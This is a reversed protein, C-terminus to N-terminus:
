DKHIETKYVLYSDSAVNTIPKNLDQVTKNICDKILKNFLKEAENVIAAANVETNYDQSRQQQPQPGYMYSATYYQQGSSSSNSYYDM